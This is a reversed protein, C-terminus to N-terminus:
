SYKLAAESSWYKGPKRVPASAMSIRWMCGSKGVIVERSGCHRTRQKTVRWFSRFDRATSSRRNSSIVVRMSVTHSNGLMRRPRTSWRPVPSIRSSSYMSTWRIKRATSFGSAGALVMSAYRSSCSRVASRATVMSMAGSWAAWAFIALTSRLALRRGFSTSSILFRAVPRLGTMGRVGASMCPILRSIM